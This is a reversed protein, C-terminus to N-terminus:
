PKLRPLLESIEIDFILALKVVTEIRISPQGKEVRSVWQKQTYLREALEKQTWGKAERLQKIHLGLSLIYCEVELTIDSVKM